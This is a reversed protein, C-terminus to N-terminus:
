KLLTLQVPLFSRKEVVTETGVGFKEEGTAIAFHDSANGRATIFAVEGPLPIVDTEETKKFHDVVFLHRVGRRALAASHSRSRPQRM